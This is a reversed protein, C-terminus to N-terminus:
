FISPEEKIELSKNVWNLYHNLKKTCNDSNKLFCTYLYTTDKINISFKLSDNKVIYRVENYPVIRNGEVKFYYNETEKMDM